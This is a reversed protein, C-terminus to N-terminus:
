IVLVFKGSIAISAANFLCNGNGSSRKAVLGSQVPGYQQLFQNSIIDDPMGVADLGKRLHITSEPLSLNVNNLTHYFKKTAKCSRKNRSEAVRSLAASYDFKSKSNISSM